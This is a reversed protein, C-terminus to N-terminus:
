EGKEAKLRAKIEDAAAYFDGVLRQTRKDYDIRQQSEYAYQIVAEVEGATMSRIEAGTLGSLVARGKNLVGVAYSEGWTPEAEGGDTKPAPPSELASPTCGYIVYELAAYIQEHTFDAFAKLAEDVAAKVGAMDAPDALETHPRSLAYAKIALISEFDGDKLFEEIRDFWIDHGITPERFYLGPAISATRPMLSLAEAPRRGRSAEVKLGLANLRVIDRPTPALGAAAFEDFITEALRSLM